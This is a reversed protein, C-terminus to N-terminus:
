GPAPRIGLELLLQAASLIQCGQWGGLRLLHHDGSVIIEAAGAAAAELFRNDAPDDRVVDVAGEPEVLVGVRALQRVVE